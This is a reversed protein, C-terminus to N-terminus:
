EQQDQGRVLYNDREKENKRKRWGYGQDGMLSELFLLNGNNRSGYSRGRFSDGAGDVM